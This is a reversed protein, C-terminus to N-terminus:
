VVTLLGEDLYSISHCISSSHGIVTHAKSAIQVRSVIPADPGLVRPLHPGTVLRSEAYSM